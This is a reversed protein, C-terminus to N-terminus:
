DSEKDVLMEIKTITIGKNQGIFSKQGEDLYLPSPKVGLLYENGYNRNPYTENFYTRKQAGIRYFKIKEQRYSQKPAVAIMTKTIEESGFTSPSFIDGLIFILDISITYPFSVLQSYIIVEKETAKVNEFVNNNLKTYFEEKNVTIMGKLKNPIYLKDVNEFYQEQIENIDELLKEKDINTEYTFRFAKAEEIQEQTLEVGLVGTGTIPVFWNATASTINDQLVIWEEKKKYKDKIPIDQEEDYIASNVNAENITIIDQLIPDNINNAVLATEALSVELNGEDSKKIYTDSIKNNDGDNTAKNANNANAVPVLTPDIYQGNHLVYDAKNAKKVELEHEPKGNLREANYVVIVPEGAYEGGEEFYTLNSPLTDLLENTKLYDNLLTNITIKKVEKNNNNLIIIDSGIVESRLQYNSFDKDLKNSIASIIGGEINGDDGKLLDSIEKLTDFDEHAGDVLNDLAHNIASQINVKLGEIELDTETKSGDNETVDYTIREILNKNAYSDITNLKNLETSYKTDVADKVKNEFQGKTTGTLGELTDIRGGFAEDVGKMGEIDSFITNFIGTHPTNTWEKTNENWTGRNNHNTIGTNIQGNINHVNSQGAHMNINTMVTGLINHASSSNTHNDFDNQNVKNNINDILVDYNTPALPTPKNFGQTPQITLVGLGSSYQTKYENSDGYLKGFEVKFRLQGHNYFYWDSDLNLYWVNEEGQTMILNPSESGDPRRFQLHPIYGELDRGFDISLKYRSAEGQYLTVNSFNSLENNSNMKFLIDKFLRNNEM